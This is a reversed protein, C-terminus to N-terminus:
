GRVGLFGTVFSLFDTQRNYDFGLHEGAAAPQGAADLARGSQSLHFFDRAVDHIVLHQTIVHLLDHDALFHINGFFEVNAHRYIIVM